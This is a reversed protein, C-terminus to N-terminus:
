QFKWTHCILINSIDAADLPFLFNWFHSFLRPTWSWVCSSKRNRWGVDHVKEIAVCASVGLVNPFCLVTQPGPKVLVPGIDVCVCAGMDGSMEVWLVVCKCVHFTKWYLFHACIVRFFALLPLRKPNPLHSSQKMKPKIHLLLWFLTKRGKLCGRKCVGKKKPWQPQDYGSSSDRAKMQWWALMRTTSM